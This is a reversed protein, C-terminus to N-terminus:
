RNARQSLSAGSELSIWAKTVLEATRIMHMSPTLSRREDRSLRIGAQYSVDWLNYYKM